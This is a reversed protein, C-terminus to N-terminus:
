RVELAGLDMDVVVPWHDSARRTAENEMVTYNRVIVGLPCFVYDIRGAGLGVRSWGRWTKLPGAAPTQAAIRADKWERTLLQYPESRPRCNFDGAMISPLTDAIVPCRRVLLKASEIRAEEGWHDLHTSFVCFERGSNRDRLRAWTATRRCRANWGLASPSDQPALWFTGSDVLEFRDPRYFVPTFEGAEAGDDRGVGVWRYEPLDVELDRLMGISFEQGSIVDARAEHFVAACAPRRSAWAPHAPHDSWANYTMVRIM